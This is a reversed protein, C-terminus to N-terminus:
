ASRQLQDAYLSVASANKGLMNGESLLSLCDYGLSYAPENETQRCGEPFGNRSTLTVALYLAKSTCTVEPIEMTPHRRDENEGAPCRHKGQRGEPCASGRRREKAVKGRNRSRHVTQRKTKM